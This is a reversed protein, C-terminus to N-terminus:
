FVIFYTHLAGCKLNLRNLSRRLVDGIFYVAAHLFRRTKDGGLLIVCLFTLHDRVLISFIRPFHLSFNAREVAICIKHKRNTIYKIISEVKYDTANQIKCNKNNIQM